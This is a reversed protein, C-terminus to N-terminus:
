VIVLYSVIEFDNIQQSSNGTLTTGGPNFLSAAGKEESKGAIDEVAVGLLHCYDSMDEYNKTAKEIEVYAFEDPEEAQSSLKKILDLIHKAQTYSYVVDEDESVYVLYYPALAYSEDVQVSGSKDKLCFIVGPELEDSISALEEDSSNIRVPAFLGTPAAELTELHEKLYDSLDMRFDNLTLDTISVGGSIEELDVVQGQLQELQKRRYDLDNMEASNQEIVNEEGTASIDLLVMRGSVRAELNIYEDLEMNPWFNVLQIKNNVSGLRDIRGFRQIIRVPNWHIDYNILYDCDQLNQGESICDTAILIDIEESFEPFVKEREKSIPSFHTLMSNLDAKVRKGRPDVLTTDTRQGTIIATKIGFKSLAWSALEGYLYEATDAFASFIIVKKNSGNIPSHIKETISAKLAKLKADRPAEVQRAEHVIERLFACDAELDQAYRILDMDQLRVKTKKGVMFPALEPSELEFDHIEEIPPAVFEDTLSGGLRPSLHQNFHEIQHLIAEVQSLLKESTLKFSFISSEMRKLLNIRMLHVLSAERDVQKFISGGKVKQDYRRAYEAIKNPMVYKMPSYCALTLRRITDNVDKLPPFEKQLDIESKVNKPLLRTPFKGVDETGYYKEIHKRSRAITYIDLLKFYDFNITDLLEQSTREETPRKSWANFHKQATRLTSEISNIGHEHLASDNAETIFAVQNKMDNLRNNVPTASLMLVKTKVGAKIIDDLLRQYRNKGDKKPNNNRFNHSEDIVVLDYNGWNITELNIAGSHGKFRSMDTHNLVDYNFRDDALLNRKDNQTYVLWNDRLKKPCLVLVKDNRLEFYKIVALAEFTKGLGVSDAIICGNYKSLKDIAGLVGDRQFKYLKNWVITDKFGTRTNIINEEQLEGIFDKFLNYLTVFYIFNAPQDKTLQELQDLLEKKADKVQGKAGWVMNFYALLDNSQPAPVKSIMDFSASETLGLGSGNFQAGDIATLDSGESVIIHRGVAGAQGVLKVNVKNELWESFERAVAKQDLQNRFSTEHEGGLLTGFPSNVDSLNGFGKFQSFLIRASKLNTLEDKLADFAYISFLGTMISLKDDEKLSERLVDTVKNVTNDILM